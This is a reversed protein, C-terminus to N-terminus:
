INKDSWTRYGINKQYDGGPLAPRSSCFQTSPNLSGLKGINDDM